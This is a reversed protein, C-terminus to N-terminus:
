SARGREPDDLVHRVKEALAQTTFPTSIFARAGARSLEEFATAAYGSMYLVRLEPRLALARGGLEVGGMEPMILDTLLLDVAAPDNALLRLAEMADVAVRVQYGLSGLRQCIADRVAANDEVLLITESGGVASAPQSDRTEVPADVRPLYLKFTTGFALESYVAVRGGSQSVIGHVISLGLGSGKGVAKTTFFPEFARARTEARMGVGTDSVSLLVYHGAPVDPDTAGTAFDVNATEITLRGGHPMADRANLALNLLVQEMQSPDAHVRGLDPAHVVRLAIQEGLVRGLMQASASVLPGLEIVRLDLVQQRSFALLQRTLNRGREAAQRIEELAPRDGERPAELLLEGYLLIVSLLNNFDHAVGGALRGIGEMKQAQQLQAELRSREGIDEFVAVAGVIAGDPSALRTHHWRSLLTGGHKNALTVVAHPVAEGALVGRFLEAAKDRAAGAPALLEPSGMLMEAATWGLLREATPNWYRIRGADDLVICGLPLGDLTAQQWGLIQARQAEAQARAEEEAQLECFREELAAHALRLEEGAQQSATFRKLARRVWALRGSGPAIFVDYACGDAMPTAVVRAPPAGFALPMGSLTGELILWNEPSPAYGPRMRIEVRVHGPRVLRAHGEEFAFYNVAPGRKGGFMWLYFDTVSFLLNAIVGFARLQASAVSAVGLQRLEDATWVTGANRMVVLFASWPVYASGKSLQGVSYGSGAVLVDPSHGKEAIAALLVGFVRCSVERGVRIPPPAHPVRGLLEAAIGM